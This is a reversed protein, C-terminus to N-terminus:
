SCLSFFDHRQYEDVPSRGINSVAGRQLIETMWATWPHRRHFGMPNEGVFIALEGHQISPRDLGHLFYTNRKRMPSTIM